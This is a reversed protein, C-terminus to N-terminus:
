GAVAALAGTLGSARSATVGAQTAAESALPGAVVVRYGQEAIYRVNTLAEASTRPLRLVANVDELRPDVLERGDRAAPADIVLATRPAESRGGSDPALLGGAAVVGAALLSGITTGLGTMRIRM